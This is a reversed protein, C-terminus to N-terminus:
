TLGVHNVVWERLKRRPKDVGFLGLNVFGVREHESCDIGRPSRGSSCYQQFPEIRTQQERGVIQRSLAVCDATPRIDGGDEAPIRHVTLDNDFPVGLAIMESMALTLSFRAKGTFPHDEEPDSHNAPTGPPAPIRTNYGHMDAGLTDPMIGADLSIRAM